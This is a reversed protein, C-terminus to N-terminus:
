SSADVDLLIKVYDLSALNPFGWFWGILARNSSNPMNTSILFTLHIRRALDGMGLTTKRFPLARWDYLYSSAPMSEEHMGGGNYSM